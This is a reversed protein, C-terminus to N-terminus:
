EISYKGEILPRTRTVRLVFTVNHRPKMDIGRDGNAGGKGEERVPPSRLGSIASNRVRRVDNPCFGNEM